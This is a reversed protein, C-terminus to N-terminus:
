EIGCPCWHFIKAKIPKVQELKAESFKVQDWRTESPRMQNRQGPKSSTEEKRKTEKTERPRMPNGQSKTEIIIAQKHETESPRAPNLLM